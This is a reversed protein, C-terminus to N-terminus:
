YFVMADTSLIGPAIDKTEGRNSTGSVLANREIDHTSRQALFVDAEDFLLVCGWKNALRFIRKLNKDVEYRSVGIDGCTIPFLPKKRELAVAEATATKGVGPVGHLLIVLGDGKGHIFDQGLSGASSNHMKAELEKKEFHSSVLGRIAEKKTKHVKLREFVHPQLPIHRIFRVDLLVHTRDRLAFAFLRKPLFVLDEDRLKFARKKRQDDKQDLKSAILFEDGEIAQKRQWMSVGDLEQVIETTESILKARDYGSWRRIPFEDTYLSWNDALVAPERFVPKWRPYSNFAEEFDIVVPGDVYEPMKREGHEVEIRSGAPNNVLTWGFYNVHKTELFEQFKQGKKQLEELLQKGKEAYRIPYCPLSTISKEGEFRRINFRKSVPRYSSGDYDIYYCDVMFTETDITDEDGDVDIAQQPKSGVISSYNKVQDIPTAM